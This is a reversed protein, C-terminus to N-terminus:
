CLLLQRAVALASVTATELRLVYSGLSLFSLGAEKAQAEERESWGGEPGIFISLLKAQKGMSETRM